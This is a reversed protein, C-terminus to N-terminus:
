VPLSDNRGRSSVSLMLLSAFVLLLAAAGSITLGLVAELRVKGGFYPEILLLFLGHLLCYTWFIQGPFRRTKSLGALLIFFLLMASATYIQTPLLSVNLPALSLQDTFVIGGPATSPIGYGEGSALLGIWGVAQGLALGPAIADFTDRIQMRRIIAYIIIIPVALTIAGYFNLGGAQTKLIELPRVRFYDPIELVFWIRAGIFAFAIVYFSLDTMAASALGYNPARRIAQWAGVLCGLVLLAGFTPVRLTGFHYLVPLM